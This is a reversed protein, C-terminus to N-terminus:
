KNSIALRKSHRTKPSKSKGTWMNESRAKATSFRPDRPSRSPSRLAITTSTSPLVKTKSLGFQKKVGEMVAHKAKNSEHTVIKGVCDLRAEIPDFEELIENEEFLSEMYKMVFMGCDHGNQQQPYDKSSSIIVFESFNLDGPKVPAFLQDLTQLMEVCTSRRSRKHMASSLSDRIEVTTNVMSVNAAFWHPASETDLLPVVMTHCLSLDADYYLTSWEQQKAMREVTMSRGLLKSSIRTPMFWTRKSGIGNRKKERFNMIQAFCDILSHSIDTEPKMCKFYMREVEVKGFHALVESPDNASSFIYRFLEYQQNSYGKKVTFPGIVKGGSEKFREFAADDFDDKVAQEVEEKVIAPLDEGWFNMVEFSDDSVVVKTPVVVKEESLNLSPVSEVDDVDEELQDKTGEGDKEEVVVDDKTGEGDKEEVCVDDKKETEGNFSLSRQVKSTEPIELVEKMTGKGLYTSVVKLLLEKASSVKLDLRFVEDKLECVAKYIADNTPQGVAASEFSPLLVYTNTLKVKGSTHGGQDRIWKYVSKCHKTTWFDIPAVTRDVHTATWDVHTLYVLQLFITCGSVNKTNKTKYRHLSSMLYRYGATAWNKKKISRIDVLSHMYSTSVETGNKPLLVTGICVLLFKILFLYDSDSTERLENELLTLSYRYDKAKFLVDFEVLDRESETAVPEGGDRIGMVDEFLKASLQITRGFIELRSTTPDVHDILWSVIKADIYPADERLFTSFGANRVMEKQAENLLPVIRGLREFSCRGSVQVDGVGENNDIGPEASLTEKVKKGKGRGGVKSPSAEVEYAAWNEIEEDTLLKFQEKFSRLVDAKPKEKHADAYAYFNAQYYKPWAEKPDKKKIEAADKKDAAAGRKRKFVM